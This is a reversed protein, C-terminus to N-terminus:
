DGKCSKVDFLHALARPNEPDKEFGPALMQNYKM